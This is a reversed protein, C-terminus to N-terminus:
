FSLKMSQFYKEFGYREYFKANDDSAVLTVKFCGNVKAYDVLNNVILGGIGNGRVDKCVVVDEIIAARGGRIREIIFVSGFGITRGDCMAVCAYNGEAELFSEALGNLKVDKPRFISVSQLMDVVCEMDESLFSRITVNQNM